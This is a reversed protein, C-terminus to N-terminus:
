IIVYGRTEGVITGNKNKLVIHIFHAKSPNTVIDSTNKIKINVEYDDVRDTFVYDDGVLIGSRPIPRISQNLLFDKIDQANQWNVLVEKATNIAQAKDENHKNMFGMQPFINMFSILVISLLAMALIVEILTIGKENKLSEM